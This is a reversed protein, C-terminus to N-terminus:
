VVRITILRVSHTAEVTKRRRKQSFMPSLMDEVARFSSVVPKEVTKESNMISMAIRTKTRPATIIEKMTEIM